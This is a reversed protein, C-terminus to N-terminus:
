DDIHQADLRLIREGREVPRHAVEERRMLELKGVNVVDGERANASRIDLTINVVYLGDLDFFKGGDARATKGKRAFLM